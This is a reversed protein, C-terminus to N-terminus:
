WGISDQLNKIAEKITNGKGVLIDNEAWFNACDVDEGNIDIPVDEFDLNWATFQGGSYAGTYRDKIITLPYIDEGIEEYEELEKARDDNQILKGLIEEKSANSLWDEFFKYRIKENIERMKAEEWAKTLIENTM